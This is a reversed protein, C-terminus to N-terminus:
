EKKMPSHFLTTHTNRPTRLDGCERMRNKEGERGGDNEPSEEAMKPSSKRRWKTVIEPEEAAGNGAGDNGMPTM